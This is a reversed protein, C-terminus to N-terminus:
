QQYEGLENDTWPFAPVAGFGSAFCIVGYILYQSIQMIMPNYWSIHSVTLAAAGTVTTARRENILAGYRPFAGHVASLVM